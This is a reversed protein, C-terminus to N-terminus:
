CSTMAKAIQEAQILDITEQPIEIDFEDKAKQVFYDFNTMSMFDVNNGNEDKLEFDNINSYLFECTENDQITMFVFNLKDVGCGVCVQNKTKPTTTNFEYRSM